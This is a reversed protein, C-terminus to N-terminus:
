NKIVWYIEELLNSILSKSEIQFNVKEKPSYETTPDMHDSMNGTSQVERERHPGNHMDANITTTDTAQDRNGIYDSNANRSTDTYIPDQGLQNLAKALFNVNEVTTVSAALTNVRDILKQKASQKTAM